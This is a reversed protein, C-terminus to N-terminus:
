HWNSTYSMGEGNSYMGVGDNDDLMPKSGLAERAERLMASMQSSMRRMRADDELEERRVNNILSQTDPPLPSRTHAGFDSQLPSGLSQRNYLRQRPLSNPTGGYLPRGDANSRRSVPILSHRKSSAPTSAGARSIPRPIQSPSIKYGPTRRESLRPTGPRSTTEGDPNVVVWSDATRLRKAMRPRESDVSEISQVGYNNSQYSGYTQEMVPSAELIPAAQQVPEPPAQPVADDHLGLKSAIEAQSEMSYKNGGGAQFGRFPVTCFQFLKGAVGGVINLLSNVMWPTSESTHGGRDMGLQHAPTAAPWMERQKQLAFYDDDDGNQRAFRDVGDMSGGGALEYRDHALPPPSKSDAFASLTLSEDSWPGATFGRLTSDAESNRSRKRTEHEPNTVQQASTESAFSFHPSSDFFSTGSSNRVHSSTSFLGPM